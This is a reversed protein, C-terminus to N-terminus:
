IVVTEILRGNKLTYWTDEKVTENDVCVTKVHTFDGAETFTIWSGAAAKVKCGNGTCTIVANKGTSNVWSGSGSVHIKVSNGSSRVFTHKGICMINAHVGESSIQSYDGTSIIEAHHGTSVVRSSNGSFNIYASTDTSAIQTDEGSATVRVCEGSVGIKTGIKKSSINLHSGTSLVVSNSGSVSINSNWGSTVIMASDGSSVIEANDSVSGIASRYGSDSIERSNKKVAMNDMCAQLFEAFEMKEGIRIKNTCFEVGRHEKVEGLAEVPSFWNLECERNVLDYSNFVNIPHVCYHIGCQYVIAKDEVFVENERYQKGERCVMGPKYAKFGFRNERNEM